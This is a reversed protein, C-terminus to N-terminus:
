RSKENMYQQFDGKEVLLMDQYNDQNYYYGQDYGTIELEEFFEDRIKEFVFQKTEIDHITRLNYMCGELAASVYSQRVDDLIGLEVLKDHWAKFAEYFCLPAKRKTAQLNTSLGIRYNVFSKHYTMIRKAMALACYVFYVDNSNRLPQFQLGSEVVFERRFIKTWPCATTIQYLYEPCEKYSFPQKMPSLHEKLFSKGSKYEGTVNDYYQAGFLVVDAQNAKAAFYVDQILTKEFFDDSDLFIVYEGTAKSLGLNRAVGAYQNKQTFVKVRQDRAAYKELIEMSRDTSGDDVAIIEINKVSQQLLSDLAQELYKDVNYVPMIVSVFPCSKQFLATGRVGLLRVPYLIGYKRVRKMVRVTKRPINTLMQYKQNNWMKKDLAKIKGLM